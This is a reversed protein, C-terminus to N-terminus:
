LGKTQFLLNEEPFGKSMGYAIAEVWSAQNHRDLFFQKGGGFVVLINDEKWFHLYWGDKIHRSLQGIEDLGLRVQYLHYNEEKTIRCKEVMLSNIAWPEQLAEAVVIGTYIM